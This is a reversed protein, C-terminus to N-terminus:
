LLVPESRNKNQDILIVLMLPCLLSCSFSILNLFKKKKLLNLLTHICPCFPVSNCIDSLTCCHMMVLKKLVFLPDHCSKLNDHKYM